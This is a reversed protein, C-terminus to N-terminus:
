VCSYNSNRIMLVIEDKTLCESLQYNAIVLISGNGNDKIVKVFEILEKNGELAYHSGYCVDRKMVKEYMVYAENVQFLEKSEILDEVFM